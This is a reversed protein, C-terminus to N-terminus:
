AQAEMVFSATHLAASAAVVAAADATSNSLDDAAQRLSSPDRTALAKWAGDALPGPVLRALSANCLRIMGVQDFTRLAGELGARHQQKDAAEMASLQAIRMADRFMAEEPTHRQRRRGSLQVLERRIESIMWQRRRAASVPPILFQAALMLLAALCVFMCLDLFTEPNYTQPNSLGLIVLVFTLNLRGLAALLPNPLTMLVVAGIVFPALTMALLPFATVGDLVLFELTGAIVSATLAAVLAMVTFGRPNPSIAGLGIIVAVVVLSVASAPWGSLIFVASALVVWIVARVGEEIAFRYSRYLPTRWLHSPRTGTRLAALSESVDRRRRLLEWSTWDLSAAINSPEERSGVFASPLDGDDQDLISALQDGRAPDRAIPLTALTRAAHVEAVLAVAASHAAASRNVGRSSETALSTIEPRLATIEHLLGAATPFHAEEGHIVSKAYDCVRRQIGALQSALGAHRDPAVFLDNIVTMAAIGVAIAAGRAMGTEFLHGPTDIEQIAVIAVTYGSLAAAYARNGDSLKAVCVCLGIWVAFMLLLLERTQSFMGALAISVSIGIVTAASRYGAKELVQGRTPVALIAVCVASSSASELQLWFATYLAIVVGMWVRLAFTWSAFPVGAFRAPRTAIALSM